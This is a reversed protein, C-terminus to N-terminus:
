PNAVRQAVLASAIVALNLGVNPLRIQLKPRPLDGSERWRKKCVVNSLSIEPPDGGSRYTARMEKLVRSSRTVTCNSLRLGVTASLSTLVQNVNAFMNVVFSWPVLDWAVTLPNILGLRNLIWLNPNEIEVKASITVRATGSFTEHTSPNSDENVRTWNDSPRASARVWQPPIADDCFVTKIISHIDALLPVWGFEGELVDSALARAGYRRKNRRIAPAVRRFIRLISGLRGTIMQSSQGWSAMTVGLSAGGRHLKGVFRSYAENYHEQTIPFSPFSEAGQVDLRGSLSRRYMTLTSDVLNHLNGQLKLQGNVRPSSYSENYYSKYLRGGVGLPISYSRIM